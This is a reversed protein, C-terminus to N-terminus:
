WYSFVAGGPFWFVCGHWRWVVRILVESFCVERVNLTQEKEILYITLGMTKVLFCVFLFFIPGERLGGERRSVGEGQHIQHLYNIWSIGGQLIHPLPHPFSLILFPSTM